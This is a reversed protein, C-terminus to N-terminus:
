VNAVVRKIEHGYPPERLFESQPASNVVVGMARLYGVFYAVNEPEKKLREHGVFDVGYLDVQEIKERELAACALMWSISCTPGFGGAIKEVAEVDILNAHPACDNAFQMWLREGYSGLVGRYHDLKLYGQWHTWHHVEFVRHCISPPFHALGWTEDYREPQAHEWTWGRAVICIRM